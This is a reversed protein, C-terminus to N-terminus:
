VGLLNLMERELAVGLFTRVNTSKRLTLKQTGEGQQAAAVRVATEVRSGCLPMVM